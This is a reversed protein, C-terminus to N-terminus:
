VLLHRAVKKGKKFVSTVNALKWDDPIDCTYLTKNYLEAIYDSITESLEILIRTGILDIGPAWYNNFLGSIECNLPGRFTEVSWRM